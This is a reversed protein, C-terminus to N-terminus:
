VLRPGENASYSVVKIHKPISVSQVPNEKIVRFAQVRINSFYEKGADGIRQTDTHAHARVRPLRDFIRYTVKKM